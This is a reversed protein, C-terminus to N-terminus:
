PTVPDQPPYYYGPSGTIGIVKVLSQGLQPIVTPDYTTSYPPLARLIGNRAEKAQVGRAWAQFATQTVIHGYNFM